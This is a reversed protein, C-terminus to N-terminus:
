HVERAHALLQASQEDIAAPDWRRVARFLPVRSVLRVCADWHARQGGTHSLFGGRYTNAFIADVATVGQTPEIVLADGKALLYIGGLPLPRDAAAKAMVAVDFKDYEEDGRFSRSHAAADRGSREMAERWLRLRPLGPLAVPLGAADFGVVCVDDAILRHGRDHFWAALTSKGAGAPGMFAFARGDIEVANAHLPLLRRQHLIAGMASGLLFLRVNDEPAGVCPAVVIERGEAMRFAGVDDVVLELASGDRHLGAPRQAVQGQQALRITVDPDGSEAPILEPLVIESRIRLGFLSYDNAAEAV